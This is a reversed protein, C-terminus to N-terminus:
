KKCVIRNSRGVDYYHQAKVSTFMGNLNSNQCFFRIYDPSEVSAPLWCIKGGVEINFNFKM